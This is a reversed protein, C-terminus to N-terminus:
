FKKNLRYLKKRIKILITLLCFLLGTLPILIKKEEGTKPLYSQKKDFHYFSPAIGNVEFVDPQTDTLDVTVRSIQSNDEAYCLQATLVSFLLAVSIFLRKKM